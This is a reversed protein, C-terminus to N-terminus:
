FRSRFFPIVGVAYSALSFKLCILFTGDFSFNFNWSEYFQYFYQKQGEWTMGSSRTNSSFQKVLCPMRNNLSKLLIMLKQFNVQDTM